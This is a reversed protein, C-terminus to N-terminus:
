MGPLNMQIDFVSEDTISQRPISFKCKMGYKSGAIRKFAISAAVKLTGDESGKLEDSLDESHAKLQNSLWTGIMDATKGDIM